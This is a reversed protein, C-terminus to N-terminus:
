ARANDNTKANQSKGRAFIFNWDRWTGSAFRLFLKEPVPNRQIALLVHAHPSQIVASVNDIVITIQETSKESRRQAFV